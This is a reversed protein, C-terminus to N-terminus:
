MKKLQASVAQFEAALGIQEAVDKYNALRDQIEKLKKEYGARRITTVCDQAMAILEDTTGAQPTMLLRTLRSRSDGDVAQDILSAPSAGKKLDLYFEKNEIGHVIYEYLLIIWRGM